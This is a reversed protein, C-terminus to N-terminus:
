SSPEPRDWEGGARSSPSRPPTIFVNVMQRARENLRVEPPALIVWEPDLGTVEVKFQAVLEGGNVISLQCTATQGVDVTWERESVETVITDDTVDPPLATSARLPDALFM